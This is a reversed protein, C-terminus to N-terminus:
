TCIIAYYVTGSGYTSVYASIGDAPQTTDNSPFVLSQGETMQNSSVSSPNTYTGDTHQTLWLSVPVGGDPCTVVVGGNYAGTGTFTKLSPVSSDWSVATEYSYCSGGNDTDIIRLAGSSTTYCAHIVGDSDPVSASASTVCVATVVAAGALLAATKQMRNM